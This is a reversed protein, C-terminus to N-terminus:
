APALCPLPPHHLHHPTPPLLLLLQGSRLLLQQLSLAVHNCPRLGPPHEMVATQPLRPDRTWFFIQWVSCLVLKILM